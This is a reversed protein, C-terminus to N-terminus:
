SIATFNSRKANTVMTNAADLPQAPVEDFPLAPRPKTGSADNGREVEVGNLTTLSGPKSDSLALYQFCHPEVGAVNV